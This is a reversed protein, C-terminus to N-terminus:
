LWSQSAAGINLRHRVDGRFMRMDMVTLIGAPIRSQNSAISCYRELANLLRTSQDRLLAVRQEPLGRELAPSIAFCRTTTKLSRNRYYLM